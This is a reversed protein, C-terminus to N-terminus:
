FNGREWPWPEELWRWKNCPYMITLPGYMKQYQNALKDYKKCYDKHMCIAKEDDPHTDLYLALEIIGFKLEKIKQIMEDRTMNDNCMNNSEFNMEINRQYDEYSIYQENM